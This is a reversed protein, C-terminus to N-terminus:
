PRAGALFTAIEPARFTARVAQAEAQHETFAADTMGPPRQVVGGCVAYVTRTERAIGWDPNGIPAKYAVVLVVIAYADPSAVVLREERRGTEGYDIRVVNTPKEKARGGGFVQWVGGEASRREAADIERDARKPLPAAVFADLRTGPCGTAPGALVLAAAALCTSRIASAVTTWM